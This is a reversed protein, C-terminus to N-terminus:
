GSNRSAKKGARHGSSKSDEFGDHVKAINAAFARASANNASFEAETRLRVFAALLEQSPGTPASWRRNWDRREPSEAPV